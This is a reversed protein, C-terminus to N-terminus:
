TINFLVTVTKVNQGIDVLDFMVIFNGIQGISNVLNNVNVSDKYIRIDNANLGMLGDRNDLVQYVLYDILNSKTIPKLGSFSSWTMEVRFNDGEDSSHTAPNPVDDLIVPLGYYYQNFYIVPPILDDTLKSTDATPDELLLSILSYAQNCDFESVFELTVPDSSSDVLFIRLNGEKQISDISNLNIYIQPFPPDSKDNIVFSEGVINTKIDTHSLNSFLTGSQEYGPRINGYYREIFFEQDNKGYYIVRQRTETKGNVVVFYTELEYRGLNQAMYNTLIRCLCKYLAESNNAGHCIGAYDL